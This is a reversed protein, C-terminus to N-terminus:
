AREAPVRRRRGHPIKLQEPMRGSPASAYFITIPEPEFQAPVTVTFSAPQGAM